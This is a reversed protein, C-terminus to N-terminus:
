ECETPLLKEEAMEIADDYADLAQHVLAEYGYQDKPSSAENDDGAIAPTELIGGTLSTSIPRM